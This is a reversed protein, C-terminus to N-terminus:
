IYLSQNTAIYKMTLTSIEQIKKLLVMNNLIECINEFESAINNIKLIAKIFEGLFIEKNWKIDHLVTNCQEENECDCWEMVQHIIDFHITADGGMNLNEEEEWTIYKEYNKKISILANQLNYDFNKPFLLRFEEKLSINTFCSFLGILEKVSLDEFSNLQEYLDAIALCHIEQIHTAIIGKSSLLYKDEDELIFNNKILFDIVKQINVQIYEKMHLISTNFQNVEEKLNLYKKYIEIDQLISNNKSEYKKLEKRIKKQQNGKTKKIKILLNNYNELNTLSTNLTQIETYKIACNKEITIIQKQCGQIDQSIENQIMSQEMFEKLIILINERTKDVQSSIINLIIHYSIKFQSKIEKPAGVLIKKYNNIDPLTFLNNCHFVHGVKDIGRRGARGAMQTYENPLLERMGRGDWKTLKSFIVTKTPMNIGVAFTETAFLIKIYGKEFLIEIMERLIPMVGAHHIAIGKQLLEITKRYEPLEIYEKYNSIKQVLINKCEKEILFPINSDEEFLQINLENACEEVQKRSFVFCLAPLMDNKYLYLILQNLVFSRTIRCSENQFFNKIDSLKNFINEDIVGEPTKLIIPEGLVSAFLKEMKTGKGKKIVGKPACLWSYHTLPVVRKSTSSLVVIKDSGQNKKKM